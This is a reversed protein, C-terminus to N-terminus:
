KAIEQRPYLKFKVETIKINVIRYRKGQYRYCSARREDSIPAVADVRVPMLSGFFLRYAATVRSRYMSAQFSADLFEAYLRKYKNSSLRKFEREREREGESEREYIRELM